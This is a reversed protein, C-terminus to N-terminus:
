QAANLPVWQGNQRIITQGSQPNRAIRGELPDSGPGAAAPAAAAGTRGLLRDISAQIKASHEDQERFKQAYEKAVYPGLKTQIEDRIQTMKGPILELEASIVAALEKPSKTSGIATLFREREAEGGPSGAYFKTIEQGYHAAEAQLHDMAAAQDTTLGRAANVAHALPAIGWGGYNHLDEAAKAVKALHDMATTGNRLQGGMSSPTGSALQTQLTRRAPYDAADAPMGIDQGYKSAVMGIINTKRPNGTPMARGALYDHVGSQIEQPFQKLYADGQLNSDVGPFTENGMGGGEGQMVQGSQQAQLNLHMIAQPDTIPQGSDSVWGM